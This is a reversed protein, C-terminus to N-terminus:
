EYCHQQHKEMIQAALHRFRVNDMIWDKMKKCLHLAFQLCTGKFQALYQGHFLNRVNDVHEM